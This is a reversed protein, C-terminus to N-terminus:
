QKVKKSPPKKIKYFKKKNKAPSESSDAHFEYRYAEYITPCFTKALIQYVTNRHITKNQSLSNWMHYTYPRLLDFKETPAEFIEDIDTYYQPYFLEFGFITIGKCDKIPKEKEKKLKPCLRKLVEKITEAGNFSWSTPKYKESIEKLVEGTVNRGVDDTGFAMVGSAIDGYNEEAIFNLPLHELSRTVIIDTDLYVGGWKHLTLIRLIDATHEVPYSSYKVDNLLISQVISGKSFEAVHIRLLHINPFEQLYKLCTTKLAHNTVPSSFLVYVQSQPHARAATEISCAERISIGGRCSTEHFFISKDKPTFTPDEASPLADGWNSYHCPTTWEIVFRISKYLIVILVAGSLRPRTKFLVSLAYM